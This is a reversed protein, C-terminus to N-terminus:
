PNKNKLVGLELNSPIYLITDAAATLHEAQRRMGTWEDEEDTCDTGTNIFPM